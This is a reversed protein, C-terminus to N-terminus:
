NVLLLSTPWSHSSPLPPLRLMKEHMDQLIRVTSLYSILIKHLDTKFCYFQYNYCYQCMGKSYYPADHGCTVPKRSKRVKEGRKIEKRIEKQYCNRCMRHGYAKVQPHKKCFQIPQHLAAHEARTLVQLNELRNDLKKHNIHHVVENPSLKRRLFKEMMARHESIRNKGVAIFKHGSKAITGEGRRRILRLSDFDGVKKHERMFKQYHINCM